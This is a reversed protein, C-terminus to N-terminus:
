MFNQYMHKDLFSNIYFTSCEELVTTSQWERPAIPGFVPFLQVSWCINSLPVISASWHRNHYRRSVQSLGHSPHPASPQSFWEVYALHTPPAPRSDLFVQSTTSKSLQFVVQIQAVCITSGNRVLGTDFRGPRVAGLGVRTRAEPRIHIADITQKSPDKHNAFRIKHFVSVRQFLILTNDARRRAVRASLEPNNHSVIFDALADQFDVAGYRYVLSEFTVGKESPQTTVFPYLTMQLSPYRTLQRASGHEHLEILTAHQHMAEQRELWTTMQKFEDKFNTARYMNKTLDIHLRESQETNYNDASGFLTISRQYHALSHFKPINFHERVGLEVFIDKEEHFRCLADKLANLTATTQVSYQALYMFDLLARVACTLRASSQRGSLPLDVVVGLVIRSIDKHEQGSLRSLGIIGKQFHRANHNLPLHSCRANIEEAGLSALWRLLHRAVGQHIQHLIDPTISLFIDTFPLREWFPHYTPKFDAEHCTAHFTTPHADSLSFISIATQINHLPFHENSGLNDRPITCKPCRGNM